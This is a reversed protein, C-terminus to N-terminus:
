PCASAGGSRRRGTWPAVVVHVARRTSGGEGRQVGRWERAVAGVKVACSSSITVATIALKCALFICPNIVWKSVSLPTLAVSLVTIAYVSRTQLQEASAMRM